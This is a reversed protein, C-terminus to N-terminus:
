EEKIDFRIVLPEQESGPQDVMVDLERGKAKVRLQRTHPEAPITAFRFHGKADTHEALRLAPFEVTAGALPV